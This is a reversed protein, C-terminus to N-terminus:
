NRSKQTLTAEGTTASMRPDQTETSFTLTAPLRAVATPHLDGFLSLRLLVGSAELGLYRTIVSSFRIGFRTPRQVVDDMRGSTTVSGICFKATIRPVCHWCKSKEQRTRRAVSCAFSADWCEM